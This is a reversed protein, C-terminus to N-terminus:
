KKEEKDKLIKRIDWLASYCCTLMIAIYTCVFIM